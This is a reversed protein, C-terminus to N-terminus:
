CDRESCRRNKNTGYLVGKYNYPGDSETLMNELPTKELVRRQKDQVFIAPNFTVFYGLDIIEKLVEDPGTYWHFIAKEIEYKKLLELVEGWAGASHINIPIKEESAIELFKKFVEVQKDFTEPHFKKDLGIEGFFFSDLDKRLNMIEEVRDRDVVWPHLGIGPIVNDFEKSLEITKLSEDLDESVALLVFNGLREIYERHFKVLHVHADVLMVNLNQIKRLYREIILKIGGSSHHPPGRRFLKKIM